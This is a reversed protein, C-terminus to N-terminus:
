GGYEEGCILENAPVPNTFLQPFIAARAPNSGAVLHNVTVQEAVSSGLLFWIEIHRVSKPVALFKEKGSFCLPEPVNTFTRNHEIIGHCAKVCFNYLNKCLTRLM